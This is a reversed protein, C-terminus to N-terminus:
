EFEITAPPKNTEDFFVRNIERDKCLIRKIERRAEPSIEYGYATMFDATVVARVLINYALSPADGKIGTTQTGGLAVVLQSFKKADGSARTIGLVCENAWRVLALREESVLIGLIRIFLGTGPFPERMVVSEPLGLTRAMDRVEDKFLKSLPAIKELYTSGGVNQHQKIKAEIGYLSKSEIKDTALTGDLLHRIKMVQAWEDHVANYLERFIDRKLGPDVTTHMRTIFLKDRSLIQTECGAAGANARIEDLEGERLNGADITFLHLRKGLVPKALTAVTTSDVGGSYALAVDNTGVSRAIFEQSESILNSPLWDQTAGCIGLFNKLIQRGCETQDVEPHFQLGWINRTSDRIAAIKNDITRGIRIYSRPLEAVSDGHSSWVTSHDRVGKLLPDKEELPIFKAPGYEREEPISKVKGGSDWVIWHMGYCIGLIPVNKYFARDSPQPSSRDYVSADGGSFIIGKPNENELFEHAQEASLIVSRVGLERLRRGILHPYQGGLHYILIQM